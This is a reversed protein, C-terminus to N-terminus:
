PCTGSPTFIEWTKGGSGSLLIRCNALQTATEGAGAGASGLTTFKVSSTNFVDATVAGSGAGLVLVYGATAIPAVTPARRATTMPQPTSGFNAHAIDYVEASALAQGSGGTGGVILVYHSGPHTPDSFPTAAAGYRGENLSGTPSFTGAGPDYIEASTLARSEDDVGGAILVTGNPLLTATHRDRPTSMSGTASFTGSAPDYLEASSVPTTGGGYGGAILVKGSALLTATHYARGQTMSGTASFRGTGPDYIEASAQNDIGDMLDAGGVVLVRGDDLLTATHDTRPENLSGTTTFKSTSPDWLQAVTLRGHPPEDGFNVGGVVLVKGNKLLTATYNTRGASNSFPAGFSGAPLDPQPTIRSPRPTPVPSLTPAITPTATVSPTESASPTPAPTATPEVSATGSASPLASEPATPSPSGTDTAVDPAVGRLVLAAVLVVAGVMALGAAPRWAFSRGRAPASADLDGSVNVRLRTPPDRQISDYYARLRDGVRDGIHDSM